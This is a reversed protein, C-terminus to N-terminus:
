VGFTQTSPHAVSSHHASFLGRTMASILDGINLTRTSDRLMGSLFRRHSQSSVQGLVQGFISFQKRWCSMRLFFRILFIGKPKDTRHISWLFESSPCAQRPHDPPEADGPFRPQRGPYGRRRCWSNAWPVLPAELRTKLVGLVTASEVRHPTRSFHLKPATLTALPIPVPMAVKTNSADM